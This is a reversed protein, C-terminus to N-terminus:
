QLIPKRGISYYSWKYEQMDLPEYINRGDFIVKNKMLTEMKDFDPNRYESWETVICLADVDEIADYKDESYTITIKKLDVGLIRKAEELAVPDHLSVAAGAYILHNILVISSAERMDDTEPKFSLGWIAINKDQLSHGFHDNIKNFLVSKQRENVAEVSKLIELSHGLNDATKILAKVDKPFCNHSILGSDEIWFLDDEPGVKKSKLELNYVYDDFDQIVEISNLITTKM